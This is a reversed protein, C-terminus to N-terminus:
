SCTRLTYFYAVYGQDHQFRGGSYKGYSLGDDYHAKKSETARIKLLKKSEVQETYTMFRTLNMEKILM